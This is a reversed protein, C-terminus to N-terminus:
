LGKEKLLKIEKDSLANLMIKGDKQKEDYGLLFIKYREFLDRSIEKEKMLEEAKKLLEDVELKKNASKEAVDSVSDIINKSQWGDKTLIDKYPFGNIKYRIITGPFFLGVMVKNIQKKSDFFGKLNLDLNHKEIKFIPEKPAELTFDYGEAIYLGLILGDSQLPEILQIQYENFPKKVFKFNRILKKKNKYVEKTKDLISLASDNASFLDLITPNPTEKTLPTNSHLVAM